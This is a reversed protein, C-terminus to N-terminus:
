QADPVEYLYLRGSRDAVFMGSTKTGVMAIPEIMGSAFPESGIQAGAPDFLRLERNTQDAVWIVNRTDVGVASAEWDSPLDPRNWGLEALFRGDRSLIQGPLNRRDAVVLRDDGLAAIAAISRFKGRGSGKELNMVSVVEWNEDVAVIRDAPDDLLLFQRSTSTLIQTPKPIRGNIVPLFLLTDIESPQDLQVRCVAMSKDPILLVTREDTMCIARPQGLDLLDGLVSELRGEINLILIRNSTIDAVALSAGSPSVSVSVPTTMQAERANPTIDRPAALVSGALLLLIAAITRLCHALCIAPTAGIDRTLWTM